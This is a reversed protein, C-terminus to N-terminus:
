AADSAGLTRVPLVLCVRGAVGNTFIVANTPKDMEMVLEDDDFSKIVSMLYNPNVSVKFQDAGDLSCPVASESSGIQSNSSILMNESDFTLTIANKGEVAVVNGLVLANILDDRLLSATIPSEPRIIKEYNVYQGSLLTTFYSYGGCSFSLAKDTLRLKAEEGDRKLRSLMKVTKAPMIWTTKPVSEMGPVSMSTKSLVYGDLAVIDIGSDTSALCVGTLTQRNEDRSAAFSVKSLERVFVGSDLTLETSTGEPLTMDRIEGPIIALSSKSSKKRSQPVANEIKLTNGELVLMTDENKFKAVLEAFVVPVIVKGPDLVMADCDTKIFQTGDTASLTLVNDHAELQIGAHETKVARVDM